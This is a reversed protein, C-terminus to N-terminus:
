LYVIENTDVILGVGPALEIITITHVNVVLAVDIGNTLLAVPLFDILYAKIM